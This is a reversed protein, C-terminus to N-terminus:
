VHGCASRIMRKCDALMLPIRTGLRPDREPHLTAGPGAPRLGEARDEGQRADFGGTRLLGFVRTPLEGVGAGGAAQRGEGGVRDCLWVGERGAEPWPSVPHGGTNGLAVACAVTLTEGGRRSWRSSCPGVNVPRTRGTGAPRESCPIM